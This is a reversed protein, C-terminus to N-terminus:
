IPINTFEAPRIQEATVLHHHLSVNMPTAPNCCFVHEKARTIAVYFQRVIPDRVRGGVGWQRFAISSVDPYVFVVDAEAGKFSHITGVYVRPELKLTATGYKQVITRPFEISKKYSGVCNDALWAIAAGMDGDVLDLLKFYTEGDFFPGWNFDGEPAAKAEQELRGKAGHSFLGSKANVIKAWSWVEENTWPRGNDVASGLAILRESMSTGRGARLPNWRGNRRRWPNSFPIGQSRLHKVTPDMMYSCAGLIMVSKGEAVFDAAARIVPAPSKFSGAFPSAGGIIPPGGRTEARPWYKIDTYTSLQRVWSVATALVAAPIRYSQQLVRRREPGVTADDFLEPHAGRWEYLAQWPDGVAIMADAHGGWRSLLAYELASLDQAEDCMIVHPSGPAAEDAAYAFEIMDTFDVCGEDRKWEAFVKEFAAVRTPWVKRDVMRHRLLDLEELLADGPGTKQAQSRPSQSPDDVDEDIEMGLAYEPHAENFGDLLKGTAVPPSQLARFCHAHLTGVATRPVVDSVRSAIEHAATRTLSCILVPSRRMNVSFYDERYRDVVTKTQSKLWTTKGTGPPGITLYTGAYDTSM